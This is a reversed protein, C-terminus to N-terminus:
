LNDFISKLGETAIVELGAMAGFDNMVKMIIEDPTGSYKKGRYEVKHITQGPQVINVKINMRKAPKRKELPLRGKKYLKKAAEWETLIEQFKEKSGGPIDPHHKLSLKKYTKFNEAETVYPDFYKM